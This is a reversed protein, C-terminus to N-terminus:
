KNLPLALLHGRYVFYVKSKSEDVWMRMSNFRIKPVTMLPTFTFSNGKYIGIQTLNTEADPLAAWFENPKSAKQLPRFTQQGLPRFEGKPPIVKGSVPDILKFTDPDADMEPMDGDADQYYNEYYNDDRRVLFRNLYPVFASPLSLGYEDNMVPYERNTTLDVRTLYTGREDDSKQVVVWRGDPSIVPSSYEGSHLKLLKGRVLKFLGNESARIELDGTRAKWQEDSASVAHGDRFPIFEIMPPQSAGSEYGGGNKVTYWGFGEFRRADQLNMRKGYMEEYGIPEPAADISDEIETEVKKRVATASGAFRIENGDSWVTEVNIDSSAVLIELGPIDLSLNYKLAAPARKLDAFYKDLGVFFGFGSSGAEINNGGNMYVRRGGDRGLMLLEKAYCYGGGCSLFPALDDVRHSTLYESFHDFEGKGLPRERYRSNDEDWRFVVRDKYIRIYQRDYAYVGVLTEDKKVEAQLDKEVALIQQDNGSGYWGNYLSEDGVSHFIQWLFENEFESPRKVFFATTAGLIRAENPYLSLIIARAQSSDESEIYREAALKLLGNESKLDEAVRAVPLPARILRSCAYLATKADGGGSELIATLDAAEEFLCAAFGAATPKGSALQLIDSSHESRLSKRQGLLRALTNADAIGRQVDRLLLINIAANQWKLIMRRYAGAMRQDKSEIAEIRDVVGRALEDSISESMLLQQGLLRRLELPTMPRNEPYGMTNAVNAYGYPSNTAPYNATAMSRLNDAEIEEIVGKAATELADLQEGLTFGKSELIAKVVYAREYAEGESLIRRLAPVARFDKQMALARVASYRYPYHEGARDPGGYQNTNAVANAAISISNSNSNLAKNAGFLFETRTVKEDLIKILGPVSEPIEYQSLQNVLSARASGPDIAWKPDDLWPLLAKIIEPTHNGLKAILNRVAARRINPDSSQVLELMKEVYKEDPSYLLLTTLGTYTQGNVKLDALTEDGLLTYYWDDRGSWEKEKVLADLALDRMGSTASRDEVVAKLADRYTEIDGTSGTELAHKYLAWKALVQSVRQSSDRSLRDIIPKARDFDVLTLALLEAQNTVYEDADGAREAVRALDGSFYPSHFTLWNKIVGREERAFVGDAGERDYMEKVFDASGKGEPLVNLYGSLLKPNEKIAAYLREMAADSPKPNYGLDSYTAAQRQWYDLLEDLSAGDKPPNSKDYFKISRGRGRSTVLPNPPPPAPLNLLTLFPDEKAEVPPFLIFSLIALLSACLTLASIFRKM